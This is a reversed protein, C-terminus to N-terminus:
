GRNIVFILYGAYLVLFVVGEPRDIRNRKLTFTFLFFLATVGLLFWIDNNLAPNFRIPSIVSTIGLIWLLNLVNSGIVNGVVIGAKGKRVAVVSTALEPLSTGIAVVTLGILGQSMGLQSALEVAGDVIWKGGVILGLVGGAVMAMSRPLPVQAKIDLVDVDQQQVVSFTYYLFVLLFGLLAIGDGRDIASPGGDHLLGDNALAVLVITSLVTFPIERWRVDKQMAIPCVVASVGLILLINSINSGVVNGIALDNAGQSASMLAVVLEPASTGMAVVTLGVALESIGLRLAISSAGRVMIDAGYILLPFGALFLLYTLM